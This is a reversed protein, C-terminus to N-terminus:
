NIIPHLFDYYNNYWQSFIVPACKCNYKVDGLVISKRNGDIEYNGRFTVYNHTYAMLRQLNTRHCMEYYIFKLALRGKEQGGEEPKFPHHIQTDNITTAFFNDEYETQDKSLIFISSILSFRSSWICSKNTM